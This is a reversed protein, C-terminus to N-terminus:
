FPELGASFPEFRSLVTWFPAFRVQQHGGTPGGKPNGSPQVLKSYGFVAWFPELDASFPGFRGLVAGLWGGKTPAGIEAGFRGGQLDRAALM